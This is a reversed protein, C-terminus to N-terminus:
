DIICVVTCSPSKAYPVIKKAVANDDAVDISMSIHQHQEM